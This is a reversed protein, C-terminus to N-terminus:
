HQPTGEYWKEFDAIKKPTNSRRSDTESERIGVKKKNKIKKKLKNILGSHAHAMHHFIPDSIEPFTPPKKYQLAVSLATMM